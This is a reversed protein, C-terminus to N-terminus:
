RTVLVNLPVETLFRARLVGDLSDAKTLVIEKARRHFEDTRRM